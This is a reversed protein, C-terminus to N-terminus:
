VLSKYLALYKQASDAWSFNQDMGALMIKKWNKPTGYIKTADVIADTLAEATAPGFTFGTEGDIVTDALGGV